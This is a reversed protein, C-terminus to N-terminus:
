RGKSLIRMIEPSSDKSVGQHPHGVYAYLKKLFERELKDILLHRKDVNPLINAVQVAHRQLDAFDLSDLRKRYDEITTDEYPFTKKGMLDYISSNSSLQGHAQEKNTIKKKAMYNGKEKPKGQSDICRFGQKKYRLRPVRAIFFGVIALSTKRM